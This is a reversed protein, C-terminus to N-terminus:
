HKLVFTFFSKGHFMPSNNKYLLKIMVRIICQIYLLEYLFAIHSVRTISWIISIDSSTTTTFNKRCM